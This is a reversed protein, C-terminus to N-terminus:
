SGSPKLTAQAAILVRKLYAIAAFNSEQRAIGDLRMKFEPSDAAIEAPARKLVHFVVGVDKGFLMKSVSGPQLTLLLPVHNADPETLAAILDNGMAALANAPATDKDAAPNFAVMAAAGLDADTVGTYNKVTLGQAEAAERFTKGDTMAKTIAANLEDGHVSILRSKEQERYAKLVDERAEAFTSARAPQGKVFFLIGAGDTTPIPSMPNQPGLNFAVELLDDSAVPSNAPAPTGQTLTPLPQLTKPIKEVLVDFAPSGPLLNLDAAEKAFKM